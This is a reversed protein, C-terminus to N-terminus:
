PSESSSPSKCLLKKVIVGMKYIFFDLDPSSELHLECWPLGVCLVTVALLWNLPGCARKAGVEEKGGGMVVQSGVVCM